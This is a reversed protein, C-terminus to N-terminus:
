CWAWVIRGVVGWKVASLRRTRAWGWSPPPFPRPDDLGPHGARQRFPHGAGGLNGGRFWAGTAPAGDQPGMTRIIRYGGGATGAAMTLACAYIVWKPIEHFVPMRLFSLSDPLAHFAGSNTRTVLALTILGMTKQADNSGHSFAMGAASLLQLKGFVRGATHPTIWYFAVIIFGMLAMGASFGARAVFGHAVRREALSRRVHTQGRRVREVTAVSWDNHASAFAAGCLGGILAHSSSSPLGLWWTVLGWLSRPWWRRRAAHGDHRLPHGGPGKGITAAVATGMSAGVLNFVAAM